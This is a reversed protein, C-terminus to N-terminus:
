QEKAKGAKGKGRKGKGTGKKLKEKRTKKKKKKTTKSKKTTSHTQKKKEEQPDSTVSTKNGGGGAKLKPSPKGPAVGLAVLRETVSKDVLQGIVKKPDEKVKEKETDLKAKDAVKKKDAERRAYLQGVRWADLNCPSEKAKVTADIDGKFTASDELLQQIETAYHEYHEICSKLLADLRKQKGQIILALAPMRQDSFLKLVADIDEKEEESGQITPLTTLFKPVKQEEFQSKLSKMSKQTAMEKKLLPKLLRQYKTDIELILPQLISWVDTPKKAVDHNPQVRIPLMRQGKREGQHNAQAKADAEAELDDTFLSSGRQRKNPQPQQQQAM